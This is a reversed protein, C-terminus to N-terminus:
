RVPVPKSDGSETSLAVKQDPAGGSGSEVKEAEAAAAAAAALKGCGKVLIHRKLADKRSFSKDCHGCPFPKVALHIRKHRKLDHNRNFSQPCQDCKFPRDNPPQQQTSHPPGHYMNQLNAAHGSNFNPIMGHPMGGVILPQGNPNNINSLVPGPLPYQGFPRQFNHPSQMSPAHMPPVQGPGSNAPSMRPHQGGSSLPPSQQTPSPGGSYPFSPHQPTSSPQSGYYGPTPPPRQFQDQSYVPSPHPPASSVPTSAMHQHDNSSMTRLTPPASMPGSGPFPPLNEYQHQHHQSDPHQPSPNGRVMHGPSFLGGRFQPTNSQQFGYPAGGSQSHPSWAYGTPTYPVGQSTASTTSPVPSIGESNNSPPTLLNGVSSLSSPVPTPQSGVYQQYKQQSHHLQPPPLEFNPLSSANPRRAAFSSTAGLQDQGSPM